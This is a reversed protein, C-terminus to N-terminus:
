SKSNFVFIMLVLFVVNWFVILLSYKRFQFHFKRMRNMAASASLYPQDLELENINKTSESSSQSSPILQETSEHGNLNPQTVKSSSLALANIILTLSIAVDSFAFIAM